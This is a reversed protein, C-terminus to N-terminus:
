REEFRQGVWVSLQQAYLHGMDNLVFKQRLQELAQNGVKLRDAEAFFGAIDHANILALLGQAKDQSSRWIGELLTKIFVKSINGCYVETDGKSWVGKLFGEEFYHTSHEQAQCKECYCPIVEKLPPHRLQAHIHGFHSRILFLLHDAAPGWTEIRILKIAPVVNLSLLAWSDEYSLVVGQRWFLSSAVLSHARCIFRSFIGKPMFDYHYEFCLRKDALSATEIIKGVEQPSQMPLRAPIIYQNAMNLPFILEFREMLRLLFGHQDDFCGEQWIHDLQEGDFKGGTIIENELLAYAAKTAWSPKLVVLNKLIPDDKFHLIVGIDHLQQALFGSEKRNLGQSECIQLYQSYPMYDENKQELIARVAFRDTNWIDRTNPLALLEKVVAARLAAIGEGTKCSTEYFDVINPFKAQWNQQDLQEKSLDTKNQVVLIPAGQALLTIVNLWYDFASQHEGKRTEWVFVYLSNKTLFFQHTGYNIEQGAFDWINSRFSVKRGARKSDPPLWQKIRIGQTAERYPDFRYNPLSLADALETKGVAGVGVFILKAENLARRKAKQTISELYDRLQAVEYLGQALMEEPINQIPNAGVLLQQLQPLAELLELSIEQLQNGRLDIYSLQELTDSAQLRTIRNFGLYLIGAPPLEALDLVERLQNQGLDLRSLQPLGRLAETNDIRNGALYLEQLQSLKALPELDAIQNNSLDLARLQGLHSLATPSILQHGNLYLARLQKLAQLPELSRIGGRNEGDNAILVQLNPPLGAPLCLLRNAPGENASFLLSKGEYYAGAWRDAFNLVELHSCAVLSELVAETGDLGCNGLDLLPEKNQQNEKIRREALKSM